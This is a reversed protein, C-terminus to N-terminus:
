QGIFHRRGEDYFLRMSLLTDQLKTGNSRFKPLTNLIYPLHIDLTDADKNCLLVDVIKLFNVCIEDDTNLGLLRGKWGRMAITDNHMVATYHRSCYGGGGGGGGHERSGQFYHISKGLDRFSFEEAGLFYQSNALRKPSKSLLQILKLSKPGPPPPPPYELKKEM